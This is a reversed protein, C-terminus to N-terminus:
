ADDKLSHFNVGLSALLSSTYSLYFAPQLNDLCYPFWFVLSCLTCFCIPTLGVVIESSEPSDNSKNSSPNFLVSSFSLPMVSLGLSRKDDTRAVSFSPFVHVWCKQYLPFREKLGFFWFCSLLCVSLRLHCPIHGARSVDIPTKDSIKVFVSKKKLVSCCCVLLELACFPQTPCWLLRILTCCCNFSCFLNFSNSLSLLLSSVKLLLKM